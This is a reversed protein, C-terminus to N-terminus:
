TEKHYYSASIIRSSRLHLLHASAEFYVIEDRAM